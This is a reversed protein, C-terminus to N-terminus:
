ATAWSMKARTASVMTSLVQQVGGGVDDHGAAEVRCAHRGPLLPQLGASPADQAPGDLPGVRRVGVLFPRRAAGSAAPTSPASPQDTPTGPLRTPSYNQRGVKQRPTGSARRRDRLAM